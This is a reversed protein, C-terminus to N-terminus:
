VAGAKSHLRDADLGKIKRKAALKEADEAVYM